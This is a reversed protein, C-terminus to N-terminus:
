LYQGTQESKIPTKIYNFMSTTVEYFYIINTNHKDHYPHYNNNKKWYLIAMFINHM